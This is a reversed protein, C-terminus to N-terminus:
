EVNRYYLMECRPLTVLLIRLETGQLEWILWSNKLCLVQVAPKCSASVRVGDGQGRNGRYGGIYRILPSIVMFM